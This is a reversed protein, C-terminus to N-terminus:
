SKEKPQAEKWQIAAVMAQWLASKLGKGGSEVFEQLIYGSYDNLVDRLSMDSLKQEKM